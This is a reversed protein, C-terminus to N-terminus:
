MANKIDYPISESYVFEPDIDAQNSWEITDFSIHASNFISVNRLETYIGKNLYPEMNLLRTESDEFTVILKYDPLPTVGTIRKYM